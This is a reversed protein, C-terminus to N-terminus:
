SNWNLKPILLGMINNRVGDLEEEAKLARDKWRETEADRGQDIQKQTWEAERRNRDMLGFILGSIQPDELQALDQGVQVQKPDLALTDALSPSFDDNM